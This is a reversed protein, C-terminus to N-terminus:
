KTDRNGEGQDRHIHEGLHLRMGLLLHQENRWRVHANLDDLMAVSVVGDEGVSSRSVDLDIVDGREREMTKEPRKM